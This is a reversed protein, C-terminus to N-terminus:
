SPDKYGRVLIFILPRLSVRLWSKERRSGCPPARLLGPPEDPLAATGVDCRPCFPAM